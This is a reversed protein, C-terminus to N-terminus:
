MGRRYTWCGNCGTRRCTARLSRWRGPIRGGPTRCCGLLYAWGHRRVAANGVTGAVQAYMESFSESWAAYGDGARMRADDVVALVGWAHGVPVM